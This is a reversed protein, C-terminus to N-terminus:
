LYRVHRDGPEVFGVADKGGDLRGTSIGKRPISRRTREPSSTFLSFLEKVSTLCDREQGDPLNVGVM